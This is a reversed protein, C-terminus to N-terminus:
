AVQWLPAAQDAPLAEMLEVFNCMCGATGDARALSAARRHFSQYARRASSAPRRRKDTLCGAQTERAQAQVIKAPRMFREQEVLADRYM